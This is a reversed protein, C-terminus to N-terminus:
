PNAGGGEAGKVGAEHVPRGAGFDNHSLPKKNVATRANPIILLAELNGPM